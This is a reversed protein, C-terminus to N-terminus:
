IIRTNLSQPQFGEYGSFAWSDGQSLIRREIEDADVWFSGDPQDHRKPGGNWIGWSNQVLVGPRKYEDDVALISMQHAWSGQPRAFGESDRASSFGQNSAITIAYGNAILDRCQEYNTVQSVTLIPHKKAYPILAAPVGANARGWSRARSGSYKSLDVSGYKQRALAGYENVYRAAWAGISGDGNGLRGGGIQVRSGAYIDETATQAVWTEFDKKLYIDVAKVADVAYAAGHAVCNHVAVGNALFSHDDEVELCYVYTDEVTESKQRINWVTGFATKYEPFDKFVTKGEISDPRVKHRDLGLVSITYAQKRDGKIKSLYTSYPVGCDDLFLQMQFALAHSVTTGTCRKQDGDGDMWGNVLRLKHSNPLKYINDNISKSYTNGPCMDKFFRAVICNSCRVYLVTPKSPVSYTKCDIGFSKSIIKSIKHAYSSEHSGLNFTIRYYGGKNKSCSGEAAFMGIVWCLDEDIEVHRKVSQPSNKERVCDIDVSELRDAKTHTENTIPNNCYRALDYVLKGSSDFSNIHLRNKEIDLSDIERWDFNSDHSDMWFLHDPTFELTKVGDTIKIIKGSYKKEITRIVKKVNNKHTVVMDGAQVSEIPKYTGDGMKVLSGIKSCDGVTQTRMPFTGAVKRIIDYLLVVKGKGTGKIPQWVDQFVPYPLTQMVAEVAAPDPVWGFLEKSM